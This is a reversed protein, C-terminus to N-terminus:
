DSADARPSPSGFPEADAGSDALSVGTDDGEAWCRGAGRSADRTGHFRLRWFWDVGIRPEFLPGSEVGRNRFKLGLMPGSEVGCKRWARCGPGM